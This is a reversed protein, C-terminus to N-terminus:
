SYLMYTPANRECGAVENSVIIEVRTMEPGEITIVDQFESTVIEWTWGLYPEDYENPGDDAIPVLQMRVESLLTVTLDDAVAEAQLRMAAQASASLGGLIVSAGGVFLALAFVVEM